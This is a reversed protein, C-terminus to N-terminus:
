ADTKEDHVGILTIKLRMVRFDDNESKQMEAGLRKLISELLGLSGTLLFELYINEDLCGAKVLAVNSM